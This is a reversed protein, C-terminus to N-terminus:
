NTFKHKERFETFFASVTQSVFAEPSFRASRRMQTLRMTGPSIPELLKASYRGAANMATAAPILFLERM